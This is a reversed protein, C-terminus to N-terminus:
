QRRQGRAAAPRRAPQQWPRLRGAGQASRPRQPAGAAMGHCDPTQPTQPPSTLQASLQCSREVSVVMRVAAVRARHARDAAKSELAAAAVAGSMDAVLRQVTPPVFGPVVRTRQTEINRPLCPRYM